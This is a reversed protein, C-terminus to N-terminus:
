FHKPRLPFGIKPKTSASASPKPKTIYESLFEYMLDRELKGSYVVGPASGGPLVVLSPFTDVNFEKVISAQTDRVQALIIKGQFDIALSKWLSSTPGKKSFMIAKATDNKWNTEAFKELLRYRASLSPLSPIM